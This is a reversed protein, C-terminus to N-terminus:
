AKLVMTIYYECAFLDWFVRLFGHFGCAFLDRFIRPVTLGFSSLRLLCCLRFNTWVLCSWLAFTVRIMPSERHAFGGVFVEPAIGSAPGFMGFVGVSSSYTYVFASLLQPM